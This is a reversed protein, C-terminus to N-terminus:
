APFAKVYGTRSIRGRIPETMRIFRNIGRCVIEGAAPEAWWRLIM